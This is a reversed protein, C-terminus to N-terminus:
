KLFSYLSLRDSVDLKKYINKTHIKITNTSIKLEIAIEKNTLGNLILKAIEKERATLSVIKEDLSKNDVRQSMGIMKSIFDPYIWIKLEKISEVASLIHSSHMYVNGYAKVGDKLLLMCKEFSPNNDLVCVKCIINLDALYSETSVLLINNSTLQGLSSSDIQTADNLISKWYRIYNDNESLLFVKM